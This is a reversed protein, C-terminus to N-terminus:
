CYSSSFLKLAKSEPSKPETDVEDVENNKNDTYGGGREREIQLHVKKAIVGIDRFSMHVLKAIEKMPKGEMFLRIVYDERDEMTMDLLASFSSM